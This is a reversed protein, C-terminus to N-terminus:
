VVERHPADLYRYSADLVAPCWRIWEHGGGPQLTHVLVLDYDAGHPDTLSPEGGPLVPVLPDWYRVAAGAARLRAIIELAPSSRLDTVGPKYTVGVVVVRAGAVPRGLGALTELVRDAVRAPRATIAAMAQETVPAAVQRERLQWLLYHPDCPICHGGVGPGPLHALYGYPKTAAADIVEVPDLGFARSAEALENALALNVARFANEHLKVLEALEPSRVAHVGADTLRSLLRHARQTCAATVGGVVRPTHRPPHEPRGPDIREPSFAVHVDQGTVLGRALLPEVLLSRTSGVLTTSTLVILQGPRALEVVTTCATRLATLDPALQRDVPTPVCILVADASPLLAPDATLRVGGDLLARGLRRQDGGLLDAEGRRIADLRPRSTDVGIIETGSDRLGLATPLGVYGLGLVAVVRDLPQGDVPEAAAPEPGAPRVAGVARPDDQVNWQM